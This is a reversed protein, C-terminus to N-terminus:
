ISSIEDVYCDAYAEEAEMAYTESEAKVFIPTDLLEELYDQM